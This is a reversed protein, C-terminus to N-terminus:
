YSSRDEEDGTSYEVIEWELGASDYYYVRRRHIDDEGPIGKRYGEAELRAVVKDLDEVV